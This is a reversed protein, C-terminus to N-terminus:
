TNRKVSRKQNKIAQNIKLRQNIRYLIVKEELQDSPTREWDVIVNKYKELYKHVQVRTANTKSEKVYGKSLKIKLRSRVEELFNRKHPYEFLSPHHRHEYWETSILGSNRLASGITYIDMVRTTAAWVEDYQAPYIKSFPIDLPYDRKYKSSACSTVIIM